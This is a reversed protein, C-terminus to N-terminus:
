RGERGVLALYEDRVDDDIHVNGSGTWHRDQRDRKVGSVWYEDGTDADFYNGQIGGGTIRQLRKGRYYISQGSKSFRVRGIWAPGDDSHGTKLEVYMVRTQAAM